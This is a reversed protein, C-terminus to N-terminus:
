GILDIVDNKFWSMDKALTFSLHGLEYQQNFVLPSAGNMAKGKELETVLWDVNPANALLDLSGSVLATPVKIDKLHIKPPSPWGYIRQNDIPGYDFKNFGESNVDQAFYIVDEISSGAPFDYLFESLRDMNDVSTDSDAFLRIIEECLGM